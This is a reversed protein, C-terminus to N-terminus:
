TGVARESCKQHLHTRLATGSGTRFFGTMACRSFKRRNVGRYGFRLSRAIENNASAGTAVQELSLQLGTGTAPVPKALYRANERHRQRAM